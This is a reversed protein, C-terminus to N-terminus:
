SFGAGQFLMQWESRSTQGSFLLNRGAFVALGIIELVVLRYSADIDIPKVYLYPWDDTFTRLEHDAAIKVAQFTQSNAALGLQGKAVPGGIIFVHVSWSTDKAQNTL